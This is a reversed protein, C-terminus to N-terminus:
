FKLEALTGRNFDEIFFPLCCKGEDQVQVIPSTKAYVQTMPLMLLDVMRSSGGPNIQSNIEQLISQWLM